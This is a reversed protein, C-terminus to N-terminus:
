SPEQSDHLNTNRIQKKRVTGVYTLGSALLEQALPISTFLNDGVINRGSHYWPAVLSKVVNAGLNQERKNGPQRGLYVSGNLPFSTNADCAWWIKVGYKAPKSPIYQRFPCKGRFPVLQEDVTIDSGPIYFKRLQSVFIEWVDRIAALKDTARRELRTVKNDFRMFRLVHKFRTFAMTAAFIPRGCKPSWLEELPEHNGHYVGSLLLLGLVATMEERTAPNWKKQNDAHNSNWDRYVREAERNTERQIISVIDDTIFLGFAQRVSEQCSDRTVGPQQHIIDQQRRKHQGPPDTSWLFGNRRSLQSPASHQVENHQQDTM